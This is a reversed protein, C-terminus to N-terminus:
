WKRRAPEGGRTVRLPTEAEAVRNEVVVSFPPQVGERPQGWHLTRHPVAIEIGREDFVKKLRRNFERGIRWQEIPRTKLRARVVAASNEFRDLGLIEIPELMDKGYEPDARMGDDVERFIDIVTDVDERLAVGVDVLYRSYEKTMNMVQDIIGNPIIHVNGSLDRITVAKLTVREVQGGIGGVNVIDGVSLSGQFLIFLGNIIDKILSQAAFGIALGFIGVGALLPGLSLGLLQLIVVTAIFLILVNISTHVLPTLTKVQQSVERM